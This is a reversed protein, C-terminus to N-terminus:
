PRTYISGASGAGCAPVRGRGGRRRWSSLSWRHPTVEGAHVARYLQARVPRNSPTFLRVAVRDYEDGEYADLRALAHPPLGALVVGWARGGPRPVADPYLRGRIRLVRADRLCVPRIHAKVARGMVRRRVWPDLLTGYIFLPLRPM